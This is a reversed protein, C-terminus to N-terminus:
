GAEAVPRRRTTSFPPPMDQLAPGAPCAAQLPGARPQADAIILHQGPVARRASGHRAGPKPSDNHGADDVHRIDDFLVFVADPAGGRLQARADTRYAVPHCRFSRNGIQPVRQFRPEGLDAGPHASASGQRRRIGPERGAMAPAFTTLASSRAPKVTTLILPLWRTIRWGSPRVTM